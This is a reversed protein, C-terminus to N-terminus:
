LHKPSFAKLLKYTYIMLIFFYIFLYFLIEFKGAVNEFNM